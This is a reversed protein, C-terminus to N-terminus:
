FPSAQMVAFSPPCPIILVSILSESYTPPYRSTLRCGESATSRRDCLGVRGEALPQSAVMVGISRMPQGALLLTVRGHRTSDPRQGPLNGAGHHGRRSISSASVRARVAKDRRCRM